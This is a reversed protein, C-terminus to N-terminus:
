SVTSNGLLRCAQKMLGDLETSADHSLLDSAASVYRQRDFPARLRVIWSGETLHSAHRQVANRIQRKLLCRTVARRAHRKPVVMGLRCCGPTQRLLEDVVGQTDQAM